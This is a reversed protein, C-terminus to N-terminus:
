PVSSVTTAGGDPIGQDRRREVLRLVALHPLLRAIRLNTSPRQATREHLARWSSASLM